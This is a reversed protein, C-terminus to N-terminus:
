QRQNLLSRLAMGLGLFCTPGIQLYIGVSRLLSIRHCVYLYPPLDIVYIEQPIAFGPCAHLTLSLNKIIGLTKVVTGDLQVVGQELPEYEVGLKDAIQKPMVSSSAGLDIMCNHVLHKGIILSVYFPPPKVEKGPQEIGNKPVNTLMVRSQDNTPEHALSVDSLASQLLSKQGPIALSDWMSLTVNSKKMHDIINFSPVSVKNQIKPVVVGKEKMPAPQASDKPQETSEASQIALLFPIKQGNSSGAVGQQTNPVHVQQSIGTGTQQGDDVARRKSRTYTAVASHLQNPTLPNNMGCFEERQFNLLSMEGQMDLHISANQEVTDDM